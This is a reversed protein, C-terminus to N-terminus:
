YTPPNTWFVTAGTATQAKRIVIASGAPIVDNGHDATGAGKKKWGTPTGSFYFYIASPKKNHKVQANNFILLTDKIQSPVTTGVFSGDAPSLGTQNLTVGIPRIMSVANDQAGSNLTQLATAFKDTLVHGFGRFTRTPSGHINRINFYSDPLLPDDDHSTFNDGVIRWGVNGTTGDVNNSFFYTTVPLNLGNANNDPVLIETKLSTSLTTATFYVGSKSAPLVTGLTWYPIITVETNATIGTLDEVTTDVTLTNSGNADITFTHGEKPNSSGGGGVLVYYTKPQTGSVYVFQNNTWGPSGTVTIVSSSVSQVTGSFESARTLPVSYLTDSNALASVSTFGTPATTEASVPTSVSLALGSVLAVTMITLQHKM